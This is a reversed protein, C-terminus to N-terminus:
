LHSQNDIQTLHSLCGLKEEQQGNKVTQIAAITLEYRRIPKTMVLLAQKVKM